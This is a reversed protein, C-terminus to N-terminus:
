CDFHEYFGFDGENSIIPINLKIKTGINLKSEIKLSYGEGFTLEIRDKVNKLGISKLGIHNSEKIVEPDFGVGNDIIEIFINNNKVYGNIFLICNEKKPKFGHMFANEVLPQLILKITKFELIEDEFNINVTVPKSFAFEQIFIFDKLIDIEKKISVFENIDSLSNKLIRILALITNDVDEKKETYILYRISALTNYLFHPNIQTQLALLEAERKERQEKVLNKMLEKIRSIMSNFQYSLDGIEDNTLVPVTVNLNGAKVKEMNYYLINIPKIFKKLLVSCLILTISFYVIIIFLYLNNISNYNSLLQDLDNLMFIKWKTTNITYHTMLINKNNMKQILNGSYNYLYNNVVKPVENFYLNDVSSILNNNEDLIYISSTDNVYGYYLKELEKESIGLVLIGTKKWTKRDHLERVIYIYDQGPSAFIKDLASDKIWLIDGPNKILSRYWDKNESDFTNANNILIADGMINGNNLIIISNFTTNNMGANYKNLIAKIKITDAKDASNSNYEKILNNLDEDLYLLNSTSKLQGLKTDLLASIQILEKSTNEVSDNKMSNNQIQFFVISFILLPLIVGSLFIYMLKTQIIIRKKHLKKM